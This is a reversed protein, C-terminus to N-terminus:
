MHVVIEVRRNKAKGSITKNSAVPRGEGSAVARVHAKKIGKKEIYRLVSLARGASLDWNDKWLKKSRKIPDSDTHGVVDVDRGNYRRKLVGVIHDLEAITGQKLKASGPAFLIANALTVTITGADSDFVVNLDDGFGSAQGPSINRDAIDRELDAITQNRASIIGGMQTREASSADLSAICNEYRGELNQHLVELSKYKKEWNTCGTLVSVAVLTVLLYMTKRMTMSM